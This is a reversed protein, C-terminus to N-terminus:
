LPPGVFTQGYNVAIESMIETTLPQKLAAAHFARFMTESQGAPTFMYRLWGHDRGVNKFAHVAGRPVVAIDGPGSHFLTGDIEFDFQGDMVFFTEEQDRHFHRAPGAGPRVADEFVSFAGGTEAGSIKVVLEIAGDPFVLREGDARTVHVPKVM